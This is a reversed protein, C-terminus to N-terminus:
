MECFMKLFSRGKNMVYRRKGEKKMGFFGNNSPIYMVSKDASPIERERRKRRSFGLFIYQETQNMKLELKM